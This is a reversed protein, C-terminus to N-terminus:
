EFYDNQIELKSMQKSLDITDVVVSWTFRKIFFKQFLFFPARLSGIM